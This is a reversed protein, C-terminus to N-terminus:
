KITKILRKVLDDNKETKTIDSHIRKLIFKAEKKTLYFTKEKSFTETKNYEIVLKNWKYVLNTYTKHLINYEKILLIYKILIYIIIFISCFTYYNM